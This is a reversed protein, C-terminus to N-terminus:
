LNTSKKSYNNLGIILKDIRIKFDDQPIHNKNNHLDYSNDLLKRDLNLDNSLQSAAIDINEIPLHSLRSLSKVIQPMASWFNIASSEVSKLNLVNESLIQILNNNKLHLSLILIPGTVMCNKQPNM